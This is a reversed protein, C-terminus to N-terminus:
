KGVCFHSFVENVVEVTAREGTLELLRDIAVDICVSVADLTYSAKLTAIAEEVATITLEVAQRQRENALIPASADIHNLGIVSKIAIALDDRGTGKLASIEVVDSVSATIEEIELCRELDSKNIVAIAPRNKILSLLEKDDASLQESSDFVCLILDATQLRKKSLKVGLIEIPDDTERIGATDALKLVVDDLRIIDEVIDRTTGPIDTVISRDFGALLNMLTSKGVNPRGIIATDIGERIIRGTDYSSLLIKLENEVSSLETLLREDTIEDIEEEPYDVWAALHGASSVLSNRIEAVKNSLVGEKASLAARMAQGSQATILDIVAEAETLNLKGNLFARKTFEGAQALKAGASICARLVRSVAYTGGHCSLEVVDEGTYSKPSKYVTAVAEDIDSFSDFVRGYIASFGSVNEVTRHSVPQFVKSAILRADKGSIRVLGIGGVGFPTSIAVITSSDMNM